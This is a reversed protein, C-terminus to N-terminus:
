FIFIVFRFKIWAIFASLASRFTSFQFDFISSFAIAVITKCIKILITSNSARSWFMLTATRAILSTWSWRKKQLSTSQEFWLRKSTRTKYLSKRWDNLTRDNAFFSSKGTKSAAFTIVCIFQSVSNRSTQWFTTHTNMEITLVISNSQSNSERETCSHKMTLNISRWDTKSVERERRSSKKKISNISIRRSRRTVFVDIRRWTEWNLRRSRM